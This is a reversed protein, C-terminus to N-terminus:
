PQVLLLAVGVSSVAAVLSFPGAATDVQANVTMAGTVPNLTMQVACSLVREDKEAEASAAQQLQVVDSPSLDDGIEDVLNLGYNPDDILRGATTAWRRIIAEAVVQFGSAMLAPMTLNVTNGTSWCTGLNTLSSNSM